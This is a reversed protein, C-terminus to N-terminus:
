RQEVECGFKEKLHLAVASAAPLPQLEPQDSLAQAVSERLEKTSVNTQCGRSFMSLFDYMGAVYGTCAGSSKPADSACTAHLSSGHVLFPRGEGASAAQSLVSLVLALCAPRPLM